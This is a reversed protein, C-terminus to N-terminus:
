DELWWNDHSVFWYSLGGAVLLSLLWYVVKSTKVGTIADSVIDDKVQGKYLNWKGDKTAAHITGEIKKDTVNIKYRTRRDTKVTSHRRSDYGTIKNKKFKHDFVEVEKSHKKNRGVVDWTWYYETRYCRSDGCKYSVSRSKRVYKEKIEEVYMYDGKIFESSVTDVANIETEIMINELNTKMAHDFLGKENVGTATELQNIRINSSDFLHSQLLYALGLIVAVISISFIVERRTVEM